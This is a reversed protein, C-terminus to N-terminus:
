NIVITDKMIEQIMKKSNESFSVYLLLKEINAVLKKNIRSKSIEKFSSGEEDSAEIYFYLTFWHIKNKKYENIMYSLCINDEEILIKDIDEKLFKKYNIIENKFKLAKKIDLDRLNDISGMLSSPSEKFNIYLIYLVFNEKTAVSYKNSPFILSMKDRKEISHNVSLVRKKPEKASFVSFIGATVNYMENFGISM